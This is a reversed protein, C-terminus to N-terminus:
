YSHDFTSDDDDDDGNIYKCAKVSCIAVLMLLIADIAVCIWFIITIFSGSKSTTKITTKIQTPLLDERQWRMKTIAACTGLSDYHTKFVSFALDGAGGTKRTYERKEQNESTDEYMAVSRNYGKYKFPGWARSSCGTLICAVQPKHQAISFGDTIHEKRAMCQNKSPMTLKYEM